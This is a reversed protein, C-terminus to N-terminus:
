FEFDIFVERNGKLFRFINVNDFKCCCYKKESRCYHDIFYVDKSTPKLKFYIHNYNNLKKLEVFQKFIIKNM